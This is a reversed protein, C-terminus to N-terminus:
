IDQNSPIEWYTAGTDSNFIVGNKYDISIQCYKKLLQKNLAEIIEIILTDYITTEKNTENSSHKKLLDQPTSDGRLNESIFKDIDIPAIQRIGNKLNSISRKLEKIEDQLIDIVAQAAQDKVIIPTEKDKAPGLKPREEERANIYQVYGKDNRISQAKPTKWAKVCYQGVSAVTIKNHKSALTDCAKKINSISTKKKESTALDYLENYLQDSKKNYNNM